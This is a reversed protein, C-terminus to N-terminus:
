LRSEAPTIVVNILGSEDSGSLEVPILRAYLKYFADRHTEAWAILAPVGGIGEFAM